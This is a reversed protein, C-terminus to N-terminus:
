ENIGGEWWKYVTPKSIGTEKICQAKTGTPNKQRWEIIRREKTPQGNKNRWEKNGNIEDRIFNMIKIHEAQKRGNRKNKEIRLATLASISDIPFTIYSDNYMELAATIDERKFHNSEETTLEEMRELLSFADAELYERALGCKKAYIALVMIGYYRHGTTIEQKLRNLWWNYLDKKAQWTGKPQGNVIRKEYWEPYKAAAEKLTMKSKYVFEKVQYEAAVFSNLYDISVVDGTIFAKARNGGKTIGGVMRFGQFLSQLQPKEYLTTVYKNWIRKTLQQKLTALQKTINKFCPIPQELQYYLHLGTGSWVTYTPKPLVDNHIQFFLDTIHQVTEIGDVDIALAYIFRANSAERSKGIYSIPSVIIFNNSELLRDIISLSDNIIYRKANSENEIQPLLEVAVGNYKGQETKGEAELEGVPFINRYFEKAEIEDYYRQLYERIFERDLEM